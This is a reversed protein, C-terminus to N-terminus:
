AAKIKKQTHNNGLSSFCQRIMEQVDTYHKVPYVIHVDIFMQIQLLLELAEEFKDGHMLSLAKAYDDLRESITSVVKAYDEENGCESCKTRRGDSYSSPANCSAVPCRFVICEGQKHPYLPWNKECAECDCEFKYQQRLGDRREISPVVHFYFGYNDLVEAGKPIFRTARLVCNAGINYRTVNPFCSHNTLSITPYVAGGVELSQNQAINDNLQMESIEYANCSCGQFHRLALTSIFQLDEDKPVTSGFFGAALLCHTIYVASVARKFHDGFTRKGSNTVLFFTSRYDKSSYTKSWKWAEQNGGEIITEVAQSTKAENEDEKIHDKSLKEKNKRM